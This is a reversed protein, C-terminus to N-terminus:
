RRRGVLPEANANNAPATPSSGTGNGLSLSVAGALFGGVSGFAGLLNAKGEKTPINRM